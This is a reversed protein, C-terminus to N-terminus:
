IIFNKQHSGEGEVKEERMGVMQKCTHFRGTGFECHPTEMRRLPSAAAPPAERDGPLLPVCTMSDGGCCSGM